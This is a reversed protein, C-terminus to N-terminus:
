FGSASRGIRQALTAKAMKGSDMVSRLHQELRDLIKSSLWLKERGEADRAPSKSWRDQVEKAFVAFAEAILPEALLQAAKQGRNIDAELADSM